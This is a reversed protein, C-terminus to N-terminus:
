LGYPVLVTFYVSFKRIYPIWEILVLSSRLNVAHPCTYQYRVSWYALGDGDSSPEGGTRCALAEAGSWGRCDGEHVPNGRKPM